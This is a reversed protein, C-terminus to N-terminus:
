QVQPPTYPAIEMENPVPTQLQPVSPQEATEAEEDVGEEHEEDPEEFEAFKM